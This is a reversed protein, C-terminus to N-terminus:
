SSAGKLQRIVSDIGAAYSGPRGSAAGSLREIVTEVPSARLSKVMEVAWARGELFMFHNIPGDIVVELSRVVSPQVVASAAASRKATQGSVRQRARDLARLALSNM